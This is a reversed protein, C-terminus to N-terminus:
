RGNNLVLIWLTKESIHGQSNENSCKFLSNQRRIGSYAPTTHDPTTCNRCFCTLVPYSVHLEEASNLMQGFNNDNLLYLFCSLIHLCNHGYGFSWWFQACNCFHQNPKMDEYAQVNGDIAVRVIHSDIGIKTTATFM